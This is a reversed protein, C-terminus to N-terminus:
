IQGRIDVKGFAAQRAEEYINGAKGTLLHVVGDKEELLLQGGNECIFQAADNDSEFGLEDTVFRLKM